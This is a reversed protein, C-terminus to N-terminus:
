HRSDMSQIKVLNSINFLPVQLNTTSFEILGQLQFIISINTSGVGFDLMIPGWVMVVWANGLELWIIFQSIDLGGKCVFSVVFSLSRTKVNEGLSVVFLCKDGSLFLSALSKSNSIPNSSM